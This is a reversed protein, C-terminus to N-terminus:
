LRQQSPILSPVWRPYSLLARTVPDCPPQTQIRRVRHRAIRPPLFPPSGSDDRDAAHSFRDSVQRDKAKNGTWRPPQLASDSNLPLRCNAQKSAGRGSSPEDRCRHHPRDTFHDSLSDSRNARTLTASRLTRSIWQKAAPRLFTDRMSNCLYTIDQTIDDHLLCKDGTTLTLAERLTCTAMHFPHLCTHIQCALDYVSDPHTFAVNHHRLKSIRLDLFEDTTPASAPELSKGKRVVEVWPPCPAPSQMATPAAPKTAPLAPCATTPGVYAM